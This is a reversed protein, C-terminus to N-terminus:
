MLLACKTIIARKNLRNEIIKNCMCLELLYIERGTDQMHKVIQIRLRAVCCRNEDRPVDTNNDATVGPSRIKSAVLEYM